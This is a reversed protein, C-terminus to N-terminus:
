LTVYGSGEGVIIESFFFSHPDDKEEYYEFNFKFKLFATCFQSIM